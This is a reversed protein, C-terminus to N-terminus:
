LITFGPPLGRRGSLALLVDAASGNLLSLDLALHLASAAADHPPTADVELASALDCTHVVLEFTRTPLYDALRMGGAATGVFADDAAAAVKAQVREDLEQVAAAPDDGLSRGAERGRDAIASSSAQLALGFYATASEVEVPGPEADLYSAVTSLARSTHGVLDRVTWEGLGPADWRDGVQTAMWRFWGGASAFAAREDMRMAGEDATGLVLSPTLFPDATDPSPM